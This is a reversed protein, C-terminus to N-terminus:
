TACCAGVLAVVCGFFTYSQTLFLSSAVHNVYFTQSAVIKIIKGFIFQGFQCIKYLKYTHKHKIQLIPPKPGRGKGGKAVGSPEVARVIDLVTGFDVEV